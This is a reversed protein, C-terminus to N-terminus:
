GLDKNGDDLFHPENYRNTFPHEKFGTFLGCKPLGLFTEANRNRNCGEGALTKAIARGMGRTGGTVLARKGKLKLDM